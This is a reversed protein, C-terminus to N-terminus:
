VLEFNIERGTKCVFWNQRSVMNIQSSFSFSHNVQLIANAWHGKHFILPHPFYSNFRCLWIVRGYPTYYPIGVVQICSARSDTYEVDGYIVENQNQYYIYSFFSSKLLWLWQWWTKKQEWKKGKINKRCVSIM